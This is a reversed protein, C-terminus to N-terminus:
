RVNSCDRQPLVMRPRPAHDFDFAELLDGAVRDRGAMTPLDHLREIMRLVSSFELPASDVFGRRAWPSIVLMPVCPGLGYIDLHPPAVHDYFGGFDDWTLVIATSDWDPGRMVADIARVTWNEGECVSAPPHESLSVPPTLWSVAPLRGALADPIFDPEPVRNRREPGFWVHRIQRLPDVFGNDGHYYRWSVHHNTLEDPLVKVDFCPWREIWFKHIRGATSRSEELTFVLERKRETLVKFSWAREEADDCYERAVDNSGYTGPAEHDVFRDSQAAITWLHEPGSPGYLSSFFRDALTYREAWSWYAPIQEPRYQVYSQLQHGDWLRDFCNMRGGNVAQLGPIFHHEVDETRDKPRTLPVVRGNCIHGTTAGDAGPFRGFYTDFTRNEKILFVVHKIHRRAAALQGADALLTGPIPTSGSAARPRATAPPTTPDAPSPSAITTSAPQPATTHM